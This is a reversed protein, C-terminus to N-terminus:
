MTDARLKQGKVSCNATIVINLRLILRTRIREAASKEAYIGLFVQVTFFLNTIECHWFVVTHTVAPSGRNDARFYEPM